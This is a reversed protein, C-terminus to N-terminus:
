ESIQRKHTASMPRLNNAYEPLHDDQSLELELPPPSQMLQKYSSMNVNSDACIPMEKLKKEILSSVYHRQERHQEFLWRRKDAQVADRYM